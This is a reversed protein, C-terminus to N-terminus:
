EAWPLIIVSILANVAVNSVSMGLCSVNFIIEIVNCAWLYCYLDLCFVGLHIKITTMKGFSFSISGNWYLLDFWRDSLLAKNVCGRTLQNQAKSCILFVQIM